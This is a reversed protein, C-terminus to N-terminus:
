TESSESLGTSSGVFNAFGPSTMFNRMTETSGSSCRRPRERLSSPAAFASFASFASSLAYDNAVTVFFRWCQRNKPQCFRFFSISHQPGKMSASVHSAVDIGDGSRGFDRGAIVAALRRGEHEACVGEDLVGVTSLGLEEDSRDPLRGRFFRDRGPDVGLDRTLLQAYREHLREDVLAEHGAVQAADVVDQPIELGVLPLDRDPEDHGARERTALQDVGTPDRVVEGSRVPRLDERLPFILVRGPLDAVDGLAVAFPAGGAWLAACRCAAGRLRQHRRRHRRRERSHELRVERGLRLGHGIRDHDGELHHLRFRLRPADFRDRRSRSVHHAARRADRVSQHLFGEAPESFVAHHLVGSAVAQLVVRVAVDTPLDEPHDPLCTWTPWLRVNTLCSPDGWALAARKSKPSKETMMEFCQHM